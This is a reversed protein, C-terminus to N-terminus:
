EASASGVLFAKRRSVFKALAYSRGRRSSGTPEERHSARPKEARPCRGLGRAPSRVCTSPCAPKERRNVARGASDLRAVDARGLQTTRKAALAAATMPASPKAEHTAGAGRWVPEIPRIRGVSTCEGAGDGDSASGLEGRPAPDIRSPGSAMTQARAVSDGRQSSSSARRRGSHTAWSCGSVRTARAIASARSRPAVAVSM